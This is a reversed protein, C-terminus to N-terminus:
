RRARDAVPVPGGAGRRDGVGATGARRPQAPDGGARGAGDGGGPEPQDTGGDQPAAQDPPAQDPSVQALSAFSTAPTSSRAISRRLEACAEPPPGRRGYAGLSALPKVKLESLKGAIRQPPPPSESDPLLTVVLAIISSLAAAVAGAKLITGVLKSERDDSEAM